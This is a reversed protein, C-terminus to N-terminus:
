NILSILLHDQSTLSIYYLIIYIRERLIFRDALLNTNKQNKFITSQNMKFYKSKKKKKKKKKHTPEFLFLLYKLIHTNKKKKKKKKKKKSSDFYVFRKTSRNM